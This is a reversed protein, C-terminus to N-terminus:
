CIAKVVDSLKDDVETESRTGDKSVKYQTDGDKNIGCTPANIVLIVSNKFWRPKHPQTKM